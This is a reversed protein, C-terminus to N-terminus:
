PRHRPALDRGLVTNAGEGLRGTPDTQWGCVDADGHSVEDRFGSKGQNYMNSAFQGISGQVPRDSRRSQGVSNEDQIMLHSAGRSWAVTRVRTKDPVGAGVDKEKRRQECHSVRCSRYWIPVKEADSNAQLGSPDHRLM